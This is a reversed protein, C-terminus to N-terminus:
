KQFGNLAIYPSMQNEISLFEDHADLKRKGWSANSPFPGYYANIQEKAIITAEYDVMGNPLKAKDPIGFHHVNEM